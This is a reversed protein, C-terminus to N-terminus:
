LRLEFFLWIIANQLCLCECVSWSLIQRSLKSKRIALNIMKKTHTWLKLSKPKMSLIKSKMYFNPSIFKQSGGLLSNKSEYVKAFSNLTQLFSKVWLYIKEVVKQINPSCENPPVGRSSLIQMHQNILTFVALNKSFFLFEGVYHFVVFANITSFCYYYTLHLITNALLLYEFSFILLFNFTSSFMWFYSNQRFLLLLTKYTLFSLPEIITFFHYRYLFFNKNIKRM